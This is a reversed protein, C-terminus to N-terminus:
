ALLEVVVDDWTGLDLTFGEIHCDDRRDNVVAHAAQLNVNVGSHDVGACPLCDRTQVGCTLDSAAHMSVIAQAAVGQQIADDKAANSALGANLVDQSICHPISIECFERTSTKCTSHLAGLEGTARILIRHVLTPRDCGRSSCRCCRCGLCGLRGLLVTSPPAAEGHLLNGLVCGLSVAPHDQVVTHEVHAVEEGLMRTSLECYQGECALVRAGFKIHNM